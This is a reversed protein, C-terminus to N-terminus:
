RLTNFFFFIEGLISADEFHFLPCCSLLPCCPLTNIICKKWLLIMVIYFAVFKILEGRIIEEVAAGKGRKKWVSYGVSTNLICLVTVKNWNFSKELQIALFQLVFTCFFVQCKKAFFVLDAWPKELTLCSPHQLVRRGQRPPMQDVSGGAQGPSIALEPSQSGAVAGLQASSSKDKQENQARALWDQESAGPLLWDLWLSKGESDLVLFLFSSFFFLFFVFWLM